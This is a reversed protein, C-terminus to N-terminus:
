FVRVQVRGRVEARKSPDSHYLALDSGKVRIVITVMDYIEGSRIPAESGRAAVTLWEDPQLNIQLSHNLMTDILANQVSDTYAQQPDFAAMPEAANAAVTSGPPPVNQVAPLQQGMLQASPLQPAPGFQQVQKFAQEAQMRAPGAPLDQLSRRLQDLATAMVLDRELTRMSWVVSELLAPIEVDFFVGYGELIFGRTRAQGTFVSVSPNGARMRNSVEEAGIRVARTLVVEMLQVDKPRKGTDRAPADKDPAAQPPPNQVNVDQGASMAPTALVFALAVLLGKKVATV